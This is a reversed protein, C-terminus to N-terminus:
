MFIIVISSVKKSKQRKERQSHRFGRYRSQPLGSDRFIFPTRWFVNSLLTANHGPVPDRHPESSTQFCGLLRLVNM